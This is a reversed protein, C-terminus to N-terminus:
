HKPKEFVAPAKLMGSESAPFNEVILGRESDECADVADTRFSDGPVCPASAEPVGNTDVKQLRDVFALVDGLEKKARDAEEDSLGIRALHAIKKVEESSLSM